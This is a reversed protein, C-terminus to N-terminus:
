PNTSTKFGDNAIVVARLVGPDYGQATAAHIIANVDKPLCKGDFGRQGYFILTHDPGIRSDLLWLERLKKYDVGFAESIKAFENCFTVKTALFANCMYKTLEAEVRSCAIFHTDSSMIPLFFDLVASALPGGVIIFDHMAPDKPNPYKWFPVFQRSEGIFEPSFHVAKQHQTALADTTGPPVTSKILILPSEIWSVVSKVISTDASGDTSEPTPVCVVALDCRSVADRDNHGREPDYLTVDHAREFLRAMAQGVYGCGVIAVTKTM